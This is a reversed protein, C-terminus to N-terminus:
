TKYIRDLYWQRGSNRHGKMEREGEKLLDTSPGTDYFKLRGYNVSKQLLSSHTQGQSTKGAYDLTQSYPWLRGSHLM